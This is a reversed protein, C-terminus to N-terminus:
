KTHGIDLAAAAPYIELIASKAQHPQSDAFIKLLNENIDVYM